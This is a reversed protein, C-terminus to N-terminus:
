FDFDAQEIVKLRLHHAVFKVLGKPVFKYKDVITDMVDPLRTYASDLVLLNIKDSNEASFKLSAAAGMSRGWLIIKSAM